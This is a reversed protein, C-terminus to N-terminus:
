GVQRARGTWYPARLDKKLVKGSPNRPLEDVFDVSTPCKFGALRERCHAILEAETLDSGAARVVVAKPTEGWKDDPVGIVAADAVGSHAMIANEVEAPYINEGGSVIMDKVRDHVYFYGDEDRYGADGSRLWGDARITENTAEPMKWYGKMVTPGKIWIEGVEGDPLDELAGPDVIRIETGPIPVGVGRLRNPHAGGLDHDDAPLHIVTGTSETLGYAQVFRCGFTKIAGALVKESIPSAGYLLYELASFDRGDVGPVGLMFQLVAPVLFAHSIREREFTEVLDSPVIDRVLVNTAGVAFGANAWGGGGIHYLPMAVLSISDGDLAMLGPYLSLGAALNAQTLQVGKPRGTTGSSYLQYAVDGPAQPEAPDDPPFSDRWSAFDPYRGSEGISLIQVGALEPEAKEVVPAFEAGVAFVGAESDSVIVAIEPAALRFNVPCPVANLKAAGFFLEIQEPSNKDLFAVRDGPGVGTSSLAAAVRSSREDLERYSLQGGAWRLAPHEPKVRAWHRVFDATLFPGDAETM